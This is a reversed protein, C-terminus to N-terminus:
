NEHCTVGEPICDLDDNFHPGWIYQYELEPHETGALGVMDMDLALKIEAGPIDRMKEFSNFFEEEDACGLGGSHHQRIVYAFFFAYVFLMKKEEETLCPDQWVRDLEFALFLWASLFSHGYAPVLIETKRHKFLRNLMRSYQFNDNVKGTDHFVFVAMFMRKLEEQGNESYIGAIGPFLRDVVKELGHKGILWCAREVVKATHEQLSEASKGPCIHALYSDNKLRGFLVEM